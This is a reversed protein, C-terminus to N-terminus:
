QLTYEVVLYCDLVDGDNMTNFQGAKTGLEIIWPQTPDFALGLGGNLRATRFGNADAPGFTLPSVTTGGTGPDIQGM